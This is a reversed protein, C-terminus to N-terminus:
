VTLMKEICDMSVIPWEDSAIPSVSDINLNIRDTIIIFEFPHDATVAILLGENKTTPSCWSKYWPQQIPTPRFFIRDEREEWGWSEHFKTRNLEEFFLKIDNLYGQFLVCYPEM